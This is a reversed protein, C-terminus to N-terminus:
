VRSNLLLFFIAQADDFRGVEQLLINYHARHHAVLEGMVLISIDLFEFVYLLLDPPFLNFDLFDLIPDPQLLYTISHDYM